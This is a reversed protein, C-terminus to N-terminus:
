AKIHATRINILLAFDKFCFDRAVIGKITERWFFLWHFSAYYFLSLWGAAAARLISLM